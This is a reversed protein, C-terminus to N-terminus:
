RKLTLLSIMLILHYRMRELQLWPSYNLTSTNMNSDTVQKITMYQELVREVQGKKMTHMRITHLLVFVCMTIGMM